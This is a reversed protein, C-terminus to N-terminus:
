LMTLAEAIRRAGKGDVLAQMQRSRQKRLSPSTSLKGLLALIREPVDDSRLDGAYDIINDADFKRVNELQNDAFAYSIAPTGCACLEYLTSGGASVAIDAKQMYYEMNDVQKHIHIRTMQEYTAVLADYDQNMRGCIVDVEEYDEKPLLELIRKLIHYPDSGGSLLLLKQANGAIEKELCQEFAARLPAYKAGLCLKTGPFRRPYDHKEYYNAYCILMDVSYDFANVDDVYCVKTYERLYSLYRETVYYSDVLLVHVDGELREVLAPLEAEMENWKTHLVRCSYGRESLLSVANEDAVIFIVQQGLARLADAISLCRMMHGTAITENMDVRIGIM